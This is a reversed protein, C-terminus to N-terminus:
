YSTKKYIEYENYIINIITKYNNIIDFKGIETINNKLDMNTLILIFLNLLILHKKINYKYIKM